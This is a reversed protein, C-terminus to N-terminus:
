ESAEIWLEVRRNARRGWPTDDCGIPLTEGWGAVELTVGAPLAGGLADLVRSRVAEARDLSLSRNEAAGGEGDSFGILTLSQGDFRGDRIAEALYRAHLGSAADLRDAGEDFRFTLSLRAKGHLFDTLAQLDELSVDAGAAMIAASLRHGQQQLSIPAPAQTQVRARRLIVQASDSQTWDLFAEALPPLYRRTQFLYMRYTLPYDETQLAEATPAANIGCADRLGLVKLNGVDSMPLIGISGRDDIMAAAMALADPHFQTARDLRGVLIEASFMASVGHQLDLMHVTIPEESGGLEAWTEHGGTMAARVEALSLTDVTLSPSAVVVLGDLALLRMQDTDNLLGLGVTEALALEEGTLGRSAMLVDAEDALLDAIGDTTTTPRFALTLVASGEADRLVYASGRGDMAYRAISLGQDRAFGETLAPLIVEGMRAMGSFRVIPADREPNPCAAGECTIGAYDLTLPGHDTMLRLHLGDYGLVRGQLTLTGDRSEVTVEQAAAVGACCFLAACM